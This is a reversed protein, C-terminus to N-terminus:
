KILFDFIWTHLYILLPVFMYGFLYLHLWGDVRGSLCVFVSLCVSLSFFVKLNGPMRVSLCIVVRWARRGALRRLWEWRERSSCILSFYRSASLRQRAWLLHEGARSWAGGGDGSGGGYRWQWWYLRYLHLKRVVFDFQNTQKGRNWLTWTNQQIVM